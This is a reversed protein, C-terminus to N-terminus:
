PIAALPSLERASQEPAKFARSWRSSELVQGAAGRGIVFLAAVGSQKEVFDMGRDPGLVSVATALGDADIGQRAVVTVAIPHALGMGTSPDVIHSYRKGGAAFHQEADGSTSVAANALILTRSFRTEARGQPDVRIRWGSQGPPPDGFVLDGSAAVLASRIGVRALVELAAGAAYGKAIGGADLLMGAEDLTVTQNAADLRLKQYGCRKITERLAAANPLRNEKRAQRWLRIVPGLTVDFAGGTERALKQSAALVQFLDSSVQVPHGAAIRCIRNLESDPRFDSLLADLQAIRDFAARFARAAQQESSAYLEIRVLTGMHPEVAEFRQLDAARVSM